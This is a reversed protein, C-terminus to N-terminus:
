TEKMDDLLEELNADINRVPKSVKRLVPDKDTLINRIAM